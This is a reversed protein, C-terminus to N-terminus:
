KVMSADVKLTLQAIDMNAAEQLGTYCGLLEAHFADILFIWEGPEQACRVARLMGLLSAGAARRVTMTLHVM